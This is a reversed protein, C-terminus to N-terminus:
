PADPEPGSGYDRIRTRNRGVITFAGMLREGHERVVARLMESKLAAPMTGLRLFVVGAEPHQLRFILEGFDRDATVILAETRRAFALIEDDPLQPAILRIRLLDHGDEELGALVRGRVSEDVVILM